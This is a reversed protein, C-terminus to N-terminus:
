DVPSARQLYRLHRRYRSQYADDYNARVHTEEQDQPWLALRAESQSGLTLPHMGLFAMLPLLSIQTENVEMTKKKKVKTEKPYIPAGNEDLRVVDHHVALKETRKTILKVDPTDNEDVSPASVVPMEDEWDIGMWGRDAAWIEEFSLETGPEDPTPYVVRLDVFVREKKGSVPNVTVQFKSHHIPIHSQSLLQSHSQKQSQFYLWHACGGHILGINILM